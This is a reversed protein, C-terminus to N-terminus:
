WTTSDSTVSSLDGSMQTAKWTLELGELLRLKPRWGLVHAAKSIDSVYDGSEVLLDSSPWPANEIHGRGIVEVVGQAMQLLTTSEPGGANFVEGVAVQQTVCEVFLDLLDDIYVFDRLQEGGGYLHITEGRAAAAIFTGVVGFANDPRNQGAGYPNSIRLCTTKLGHLDHYLRYYGEGAMKHLAYFSRPRQTQTERVPLQAVRGYQLRTGPFVVRADPNAHRLAELLALHGLINSQADEVPRGVSRSAGSHGAFPFVCDIGTVLRTLLEENTADGVVVRIDRSRKGLRPKVYPADADRLVGTVEWGQAVLRRALHSGLFGAVGLILARRVLLGGKDSEDPLDRGRRRTSFSRMMCKTWVQAPPFTGRTRDGTRVTPRM